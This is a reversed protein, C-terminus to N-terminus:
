HSVCKIANITVDVGTSSLDAMKAATFPQGVPQQGETDKFAQCTVVKVDVGTASVISLQDSANGLQSNGLNELDDTLAISIFSTFVERVQRSCPILQSIRRLPLILVRSSIRLGFPPLPPVQLLAGKPLKRM